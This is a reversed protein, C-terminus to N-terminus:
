IGALKEFRAQSVEMCFLKVSNSDSRNRIAKVFADTSGEGSSSGIELITKVDSRSACHVLSHYFNDDLVEPPIIENNSM